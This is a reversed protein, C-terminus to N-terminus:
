LVARKIKGIQLARGCCGRRHREFASALFAPLLEFAHWGKSSRLGFSPEISSMLCAVTWALKRQRASASLWGLWQLGALVAQGALKLRFTASPVQRQQTRSARRKLARQNRLASLQAVLTVAKREAPELVVARRQELTPRKRPAQDKPKSKFPLAAQLSAGWFLISPKLHCAQTLLFSSKLRLWYCLLHYSCM